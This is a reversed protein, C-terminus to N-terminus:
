SRYRIYLREGTSLRVAAGISFFGVLMMAWSSPEPAPGGAFLAFTEDGGVQIGADFSNQPTTRKQFSVGDVPLTAGSWYFQLDSNFFLAVPSIWYEQGQQLSAPYIMATFRYETAAHGDFTGSGLEVPSASLGDIAGLETGPAGNNDSFLSVVWLPSVADVSAGSPSYYFGDWTIGVLSGDTPAVFDDFARVGTATIETEDVSSQLCSTECPLNTGAQRYLAASAGTAGLLVVGACAAALWARVM